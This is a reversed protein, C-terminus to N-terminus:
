PQGTQSRLEFSQSLWRIQWGTLILDAPPQLINYMLQSFDAVSQLATKPVYVIDYNRLLFDNEISEGSLISKVDVQVGVVKDLGDRRIVLVSSTRAGYEIGRARALAQTLSLHREFEVETPNGVHGLVYVVKSLTSRVIVSLNPDRLVESFQDTLLTDLQMPTQGAAMVDGVYPLTIRGDDRVLLDKTTLDEHFFFVVDLRDGINVHYDTIMPTPATVNLFEEIEKQGYVTGDEIEGLSQEPRGSSCACLSLVCGFAIWTKWRM